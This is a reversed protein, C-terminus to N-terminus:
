PFCPHKAMYCPLPVFYASLSKTLFSRPLHRLHFVSFFNNIVNLRIKHFSNTLGLRHRRVSLATCHQLLVGFTELFKAAEMKMECQLHLCCPEGFPQYGVVVSYLTVSWFVDVQVKVEFTALLKPQSSSPIKFTDHRVAANFRRSISDYSIFIYIAM